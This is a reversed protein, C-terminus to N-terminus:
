FRFEIKFKFDSELKVNNRYNTNQCRKTGLVGKEVGKLCSELTM